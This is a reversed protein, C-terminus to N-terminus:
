AGSRPTAASPRPKGFVIYGVALGIAAGVLLIFAPDRWFPPPPIVSVEKSVIRLVFDSQVSQQRGAETIAFAVPLRLTGTKASDPIRFSWEFTTNAGSWDSFTFTYSPYAPFGDTANRDGAAAVGPASTWTVNHADFFYTAEFSAPHTANGTWHAAFTLTVNSGIPYDHPGGLDEVLLTPWARADVRIGGLVLTVADQHGLTQRPCEVVVGAHTTPCVGRGVAPM